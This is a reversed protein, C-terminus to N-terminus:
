ADNSEKNNLHMTKPYEKQKNNVFNWLKKPNSSRKQSINEIMSNYDRKRIIKCTARLAEHKNKYIVNNTCKYYFLM